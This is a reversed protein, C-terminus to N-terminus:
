TAIIPFDDSCMINVGHLHLFHQSTCAAYKMFISNIPDMMYCLVRFYLIFTFSLIFVLCMILGIGRFEIGIMFWM